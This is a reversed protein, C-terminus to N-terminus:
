SIIFARDRPPAALAHVFSDNQYNTLMPARM